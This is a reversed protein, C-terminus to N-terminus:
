EVVATVEIEVLYSPDALRTVGVLTSAPLTDGFYDLVESHAESRFRDVDTTYTNIRVVDAVTAGAANLAMDINEMIVRTQTKMDGDGVLNMDKDLSIMGAVHIQRLGTSVVVQSYRNNFPPYVDDPNIRELSM